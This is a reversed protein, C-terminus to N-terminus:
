QSIDIIIMLSLSENSSYNECTYDLMGLATDNELNVGRWGVTVWQDCTM